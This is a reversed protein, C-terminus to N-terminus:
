PEIKDDPAPLKAAAPFKWGKPYTPRELIALAAKLRLSPPIAPDALMAQLTELAAGSLDNVRDALSSTFEHAAQEAAARFDDSTKLWHYITTRHVGAAAAAQTISRGLALAAVVRAQAPPLREVSFQKPPTSNQRNQLVASAAM